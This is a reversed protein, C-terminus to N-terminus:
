GRWAFSDVDRISSVKVYRCQLMHAVINRVRKPLSLLRRAEVALGEYQCVRPFCPRTFVSHSNVGDNWSGM